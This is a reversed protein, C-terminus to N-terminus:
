IDKEKDQATVHWLGCINCEYERLFVRGTKNRRKRALTAARKNRYAHKKVCSKKSTLQTM